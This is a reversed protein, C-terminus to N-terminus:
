KIKRTTHEWFWIMDKNNNAAAGPLSKAQAPVVTRPDQWKRIESHGDAFSLGGARNHYSAPLDPM